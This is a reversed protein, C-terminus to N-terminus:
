SLHRYMQYFREYKGPQVAPVVREERVSPAGEPRSYRKKAPAKARERRGGLRETGNQRPEAQMVALLDRVRGEFYTIRKPVGGYKREYYDLSERVGQEVIPSPVNKIEWLRLLELEEPWLLIRGSTELYEDICAPVQVVPQKSGRKDNEEERQNQFDKNVPPVEPEHRHPDRPIEPEDNRGLSPPAAQPDIPPLPTAEQIPPVAEEVLTAALDRLKELLGDFLFVRTGNQQVTEIIGKERLSRLWKQIQEVSVQLYGALTPNSVFPAVDPRHRYTLLIQLLNFEGHSLGLMRWQRILLNPLSTFGSCLLSEGWLSVVHSQNTKQMKEEDADM